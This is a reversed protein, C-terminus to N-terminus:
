SLHNRGGRPSKMLASRIFFVNSFLPRFPLFHPPILYKKPPSFFTRPPTNFASQSGRSLAHTSYREDGNAQTYSRPLYVNSGNRVDEKRQIMDSREM